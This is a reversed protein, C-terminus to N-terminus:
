SGDYLGAWEVQQYTLGDYIAQVDAYTRGIHFEDMDGFTLDDDAQFSISGPTVTAQRIRYPRRTARDFYRAGNVNGFVPDGATQLTNVAITDGSIAPVQGAYQRAARTGARYVDNVTSLFPNDITVGIETGTKSAPIGTRIRKKRKNFAVGTGIIRLTSYRNGTTDSALALSFNTAAEGYTTPVNTAGTLRVNLSITDPNISIEVRGGNDAWLDPDVPLGDNAVVTYVSSSYHFRDVFEEMVPAEISSVSASLELTYEATEGANVNLIELEPTWGGPPYVPENEIPYNGYYYVEVAQALAQTSLSRDRSTLRGQAIERQRLPRLTVVGEVYHIETDTAAAMQKLYYWLEGNWGPFVVPRDAIEEDVATELAAGALSVYYEFADGLTGVFPQAQVGYVNADGLGSICELEITATAETERAANVVGFTTGRTTDYLTVPQGILVQPGFTRIRKWGTDQAGTIGRDPMPLSISFLGVAGQPDGAALPTASEQVSYDHAEFTHDGITVRIGL